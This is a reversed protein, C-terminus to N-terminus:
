LSYYFNPGLFILAVVISIINTNASQQIPVFNIICNHMMELVNNSIGSYFNHSNSFNYFFNMWLGYKPLLVYKELIYLDCDQRIRSKFNQFSFKFIFGFDLNQDIHNTTYFRCTHVTTCFFESHYFEIRCPVLMFVSFSWWSGLVSCVVSFNVMVIESSSPLLLTCTSYHCHQLTEVTYNMCLSFPPSLHLYM